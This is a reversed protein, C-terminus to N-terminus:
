VSIHLYASPITQRKSQALLYSFSSAMVPTRM